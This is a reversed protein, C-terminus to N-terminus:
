SGPAPLLVERAIKDDHGVILLKDPIYLVQFSELCLWWFLVM